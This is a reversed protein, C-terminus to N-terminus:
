RWSSARTPTPTAEASNRVYLVVPCGRLSRPIEGRQFRAALQHDVAGGHASRVRLREGVVPERAVVHVAVVRAGRVVLMDLLTPSLVSSEVVFSVQCIALLRAVDMRVAEARISVPGGAVHFDPTFQVDGQQAVAASSLGLGTKIEDRTLLLVGLRRAVAGAVTTKGAGPCGCVAVAVPRESGLVGWEHGAGDILDELRVGSHPIFATSAPM